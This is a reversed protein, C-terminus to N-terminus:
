SQRSPVAGIDHGGCGAEESLNGHSGVSPISTDIALLGM